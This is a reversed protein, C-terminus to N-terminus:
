ILYTFINKKTTYEMKMCKYMYSKCVFIVVVVDILNKLNDM